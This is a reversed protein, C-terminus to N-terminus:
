KLIKIVRSRYEDESIEGNEKAQQLYRIQEGRTKFVPANQQKPAEATTENKLDDNDLFKITKAPEDDNTKAKPKSQSKAKAETIPKTQNTAKKPKEAKPKEAKLKTEPKNTKSKKTTSLAINEDQKKTEDTKSLDDKEQPLTEVKATQSEQASIDTQQLNQAQVNSHVIQSQVNAESQQTQNAGGFIAVKPMSVSQKCLLVLLIISGVIPLLWLLVFYGAYGADHLRRVTLSLTPLFLVVEYLSVLSTFTTMFVKFELIFPLAILGACFSFLINVLTAIWFDRRNVKGRFNLTNKLMDIYQEM